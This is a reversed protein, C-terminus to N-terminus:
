GNRTMVTHVVLPKRFPVDIESRKVGVIETAGPDGSTTIHAQVQMGIPLSYLSALMMLVMVIPFREWAQRKRTGMFGLAGISTTLLGATVLNTGCDPHLALRAQGGQMRALAERAAAEVKGTPVDGMIVFGGSSARGSLVYNQRNLMHITAHELGHNRRMRLILAHNLIPTLLRAIAKIM